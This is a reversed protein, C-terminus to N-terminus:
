CGCSTSEVGVVSAPANGCAHMCAHIGDRQREKYHASSVPKLWDLRARNGYSSFIAAPTLTTSVAVPQMSSTFLGLLPPLRRLKCFSLEPTAPRCLPGQPRFLPFWPQKRFIEARRRHQEWNEKGDTKRNQIGSQHQFSFVRLYTSRM